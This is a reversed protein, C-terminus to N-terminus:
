RRQSLAHLGWDRISQCAQKDCEASSLQFTAIPEGGDWGGVLGGRKLQRGFYDCSDFDIIVANAKDAVFMINAPNLDNHALGLSHLHELGSEVQSICEEFATKTFQDDQEIRDLLTTSCHELQFAVIMDGFLVCGHYRVISPHPTRSLTEYIEVEHRFQSAVTGKPTTSLSSIDPRKTYLKPAVTLDVTTGGLTPYIDERPIIKLHQALERSDIDNQRVPVTGHYAEVGRYATVTTDVFVPGGSAPFTWNESAVVNEFTAKDPEPSAM